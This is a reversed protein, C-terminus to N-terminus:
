DYESSCIYHTAKINHTINWTDNMNHETLTLQQKTKLKSSNLKSRQYEMSTTSMLHLTLLLHIYGHTTMSAMQKRGRCYVYVSIKNYEYETKYLQGINTKLCLPSNNLFGYKEQISLSLDCGDM